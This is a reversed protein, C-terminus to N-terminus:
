GHVRGGESREWAELIAEEVRKELSGTLEVLSTFHREGDTGQWERSPPSMWVWQGRQQRSWKRNSV